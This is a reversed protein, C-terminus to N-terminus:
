KMPNTMPLDIDSDAEDDEMKVYAYTLRPLSGVGDVECYYEEKEGGNVAIDIGDEKGLFLCLLYSCRLGIEQIWHAPNRISRPRGASHNSAEGILNVNAKWGPKDVVSEWWKSPGVKDINSINVDVGLSASRGKTQLVAVARRMWLGRKKVTRGHPTDMIKKMNVYGLRRPGTNTPTTKAIAEYEALTMGGSQAVGWHCGELKSYGNQKDTNDKKESNDPTYDAPPEDTDHPIISAKGTVISSELRIKYREARLSEAPDPTQNLTQVITVWRQQLSMSGDYDFYGCAGPRIDRASENKFVAHGASREAFCRAYVKDDRMRNPDPPRPNGYSIVFNEYLGIKISARLSAESLWTVLIDRVRIEVASLQHTM